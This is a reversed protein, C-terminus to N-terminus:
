TKGGSEEDGEIINEFALPDSLRLMDLDDEIGNAKSQALVESRVKQVEAESAIAPSVSPIHLLQSKAGFDIKIDALEFRSVNLKACMNIIKCLDKASLKNKTDTL